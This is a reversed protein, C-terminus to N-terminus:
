RKKRKGRGMNEVSDSEEVTSVDTNQEYEVLKTRAIEYM